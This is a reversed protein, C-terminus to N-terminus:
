PARGRLMEQLTAEAGREPVVGLDRELREGSMVFPYMLHDLLYPPARLHGPVWWQGLSLLPAIARRPLDVIRLGALRAIDDLGLVGRGAVNYVGTTSSLALARLAVAVDDVHVFQLPPRKGELAPLFGPARRLFETLHNRAGHGYVIAPRAIVVELPAADERVIEEQRAKDLAYHFGPLPRVPDTERLPVPNDPRAGYVVASSVLLFRRVGARKSAEVLRRTGEEHLRRMQQRRLPHPPDVRSALHVVVDAGALRPAAEDRLLDFPQTAPSLPRIDLSTVACGQRALERFLAQGLLGAGGVLAVQASAGEAM